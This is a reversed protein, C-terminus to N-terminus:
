AKRTRDKRAKAPQGPSRAATRKRFRSLRFMDTGLRTRGDLVLEAMIEGIVSCFKFGHGSFGAAIAVRPSAPHFDLIFHEDPSNTFMCTKMAM